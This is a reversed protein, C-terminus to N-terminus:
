IFLEYDGIWGFVKFTYFNVNPDILHLDVFIEKAANLLDPFDLDDFYIIFEKELMDGYINHYENFLGEKTHLADSFIFNLKSSTNTKFRKIDNLNLVSGKFYTIKNKSESLLLNKHLPNIDNIDFSYLNANEFNNNVLLFNKLASVGIELYKLQSSLCHKILYVIVDSYIINKTMPLNIKKFIRTQMGYNNKKFVEPSIINGLDRFFNRNQTIIHELSTNKSNFFISCYYSQLKSYTFISM